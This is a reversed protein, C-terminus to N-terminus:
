KRALKKREALEVRNVQDEPQVLILADKDHYQSVIELLKALTFGESRYLKSKLNKDKIHTLVQDSTINDKEDGYECHEALSSLRTVFNNIREGLAPTGGLFNQRAKPINKKLKFYDNLSDMAKKYDKADGKTEEPITHFIERVGPGALHLFLARQQKPDDIGSATV